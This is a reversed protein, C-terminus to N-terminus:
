ASSKANTFSIANLFASNDYMRAVPIADVDTGFHEFQMQSLYGINLQLEGLSDVEALTNLTYYMYVQKGTVDVGSKVLYTMAQRADAVLYRM